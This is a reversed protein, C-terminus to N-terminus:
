SGFADLYNQKWDEQQSATVLDLAEKAECLSAGTTVLRYIEARVAQLLGKPMVAAVNFARAREHDARVQPLRNM